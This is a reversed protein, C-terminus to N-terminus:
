RGVAKRQSSLVLNMTKTCAMRMHSFMLTDGNYKEQFGVRIDIRFVGREQYYKEALDRIKTDNLEAKEQLQNYEREELQIIKEM